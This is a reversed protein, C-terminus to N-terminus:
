YKKYFIIEIKTLFHRYQRTLRDFETEDEVEYLNKSELFTEGYEQIHM